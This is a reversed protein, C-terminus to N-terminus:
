QKVRKLVLPMDNDMVKVTLKMEDGSVTGSYTIKGIGEPNVEFSIKDGNLVANEIKTANDMVTMSGSLANGDTKLTLTAELAGNPTDMNGKWTGAVDVALAAVATLFLLFLVPLIRRM